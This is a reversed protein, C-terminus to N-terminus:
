QEAFLASYLKGNLLLNYQGYGHQALIGAIITRMGERDEKKLGNLQATIKLGTDLEHLALGIPNNARAENGSAIIQAIRAKPRAQDTKRGMDAAVPMPEAIEGSSAAFNVGSIQSAMEAIPVKSKPGGKTLSLPPSAPSNAEDLLKSMFERFQGDDMTRAAEVLRRSFEVNDASSKAMSSDSQSDRGVAQEGNHAKGLIQRFAGAKQQDGVINGFFGNENFVHAKGSPSSSAEAKAAGGEHRVAVSASPAGGTTLNRLSRAAYLNAGLSSSPDIAM